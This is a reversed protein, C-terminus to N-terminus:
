ETGKLPYFILDVGQAYNMRYTDDKDVPLFVSSYINAATSGIVPFFVDNIYVARDGNSFMTNPINGCYIYGKETITQNTTSLTLAVGASYDPPVVLADRISDDALHNNVWETTAVTTTNDKADSPTPATVDGTFTIDGNITLNADTITRLNVADQENIPDAVNIARYNNANFNTQMIGQGDRTVCNGFGAAIDAIFINDFRSALIKYGADRDAEASFASVWNGNGDFPM